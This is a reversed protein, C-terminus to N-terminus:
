QSPLPALSVKMKSSIESVLMQREPYCMGTMASVTFKRDLWNPPKFKSFSLAPHEALTTRIYEDDPMGAPQVYTMAIDADHGSRRM